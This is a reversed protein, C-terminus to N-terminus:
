FDRHIEDVNKKNLIKFNLNTSSPSFLNNLVEISVFYRVIEFLKDHNKLIVTFNLDLCGFIYRFVRPFLKKVGSM